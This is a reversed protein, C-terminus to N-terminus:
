YDWFTRNQWNGFSSLNYGTGPTPKGMPLANCWPGGSTGLVPWTWGM